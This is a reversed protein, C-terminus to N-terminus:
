CYIKITYASVVFVKSSLKYKVCICFLFCRMIKGKAVIESFYTFAPNTQALSHVHCLCMCLEFYALVINSRNDQM